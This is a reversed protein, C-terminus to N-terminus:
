LVVQIWRNMADLAALAAAQEIGERIECSGTALRTERSVVISVGVFVFRRGFAEVMVAGELDVTGDPLIGDVAKVAVRAAAQVRARSTDASVEEAVVEEGDVRLTLGFKVRQRELGGVELRGFVVERRSAKAKVAERELVEIPRVEATQAVSIRRHDLEIGLHALLASEVNRVVQKPSTAGHTFVHVETIEGRPSAVVRASLVGQLSTILNEARKVGWPDDQVRRPEAGDRDGASSVPETAM